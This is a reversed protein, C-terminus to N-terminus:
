PLVLGKEINEILSDGIELSFEDYWVPCLQKDLELALERVLSDKDNSDHSIFALPKELESCKDM